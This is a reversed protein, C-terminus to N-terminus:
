KDLFIKRKKSILALYLQFPTWIFPNTIGLFRKVVEVCTLPRFHFIVKPPIQPTTRLFRYGQEKFYNLINKKKILILDTYHAVPDILIWERGNGLLLLCHYFDKKLFKTWWRTRSGGFGVYAFPYRYASQYTNTIM